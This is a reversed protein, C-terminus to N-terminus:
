LRATKGFKTRSKKPTNERNASRPTFKRSPSNPTHTRFERLLLSMSVQSYVQALHSVRIRSNGVYAHQGSTGMRKQILDKAM